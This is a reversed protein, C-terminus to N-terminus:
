VFLVDSGSLIFSGTGFTGALDLHFDAGAVTDLGVHLSTVGGVTTLSVEGALLGAGDGASVSGVLPRGSLRILDGATGDTISDRGANWLDSFVFVDAGAGGTLVDNGQGGDLFDTGGRGNLTDSSGFGYVRDGSASGLFNLTEVGVMDATYSGNTAQIRSWGGGIGFMRTGGTSLAADVTLTDVGEGANVSEYLGRGVNISDDGSGSSIVDSGNVASLNIIDGGSGTALNVNEIGALRSGGGIVTGAGTASLTLSVANALNSYDGIYTDIGLGGNVSDTGRNGNLVDDGSGGILTDNLAGGSLADNGRGGTLAFREMGFWDVHSTGDAMETRTWGGGIGFSYIGTLASAYNLVMVDTGDGGNLTDIGLGANLTDNGGASYVYDNFAYDQTSIVDAGNGTNLSVREITSVSLGIGTVQATTQSLTADFRCAGQASLDAAWLDIGDGGIITGDGAGGDLTDDGGSGALTDNLVSGYLVDDGAGGTLVYTEFGVYDLRDGSASAYRYWGGGIGVSTIGHRPDTIGSWDMVLKDLTGDGGNASDTGRGTTVTDNGAGTSFADDFDGSLATIRDVGNGGTFQIREIGALSAGYNATQNVLDIVTLGTRGSTDVRWTDLGLGGDVTDTGAGSDLLDNGSNGVLTDNLLSGYLADSGAGGILHYNEFGVYDLRDGGAAYRYWGGGIGTSTIGSNVSAIGSWDMRLTDVDDGGNASDVGRGLAVLDNGAGTFVDDNARYAETVLVDAGAGTTMSIAEIGSLEAGSGGVIAPAVASLTLTIPSAAAVYNAVWRDLGSGGTVTDAGLGSDFRDNGLGGILVDALAGGYIQDDGTGGTIQFREFNVFDITTRVEDTYRYWGGGIGYYILDSGLSALSLVLTDTGAQGDVSYSGTPTITVVDDAVTTPTGTIAM